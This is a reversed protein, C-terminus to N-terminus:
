IVFSSFERQIKLPHQMLLVCIALQFYTVVRYLSLEYVFIRISIKVYTVSVRACRLSLVHLLLVFIAATEGSSIKVSSLPWIPRFM